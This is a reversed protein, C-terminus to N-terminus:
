WEFGTNEEDATPMNDIDEDTVMHIDDTSV